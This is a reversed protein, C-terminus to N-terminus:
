IKKTYNENKPHGFKILNEKKIRSWKKLQLERRSAELHNNYNESYVIKAMGHQKIFKSGKGSNHKKIRNNLDSTKGIYLANDQCRAFYVYYM